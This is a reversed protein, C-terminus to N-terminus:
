SDLRSWEARAAPAWEDHRHAFLTAATAGNWPTPLLERPLGPDTWPFRRWAHV